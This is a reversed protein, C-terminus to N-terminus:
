WWTVTDYLWQDIPTDWDTGEALICIDDWANQLEEIRTCCDATLMRHLQTRGSQWKEKEIEADAEMESIMTAAEGCGCSPSIGDVGWKEKLETLSEAPGIYRSHQGLRLANTDRHVIEYEFDGKQIMYGIVLAENGTIDKEYADFSDYDKDLLPYSWEHEGHVLTAEGTGNADILMFLNVGSGFHEKLKDMSYRVYPGEYCGTTMNLLAVRYKKKLRKRCHIGIPHESGEKLKRGCLVCEKFDGANEYFEAFDM